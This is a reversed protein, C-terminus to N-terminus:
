TVWCTQWYILTLFLGFYIEVVYKHGVRTNHSPANDVVFVSGKPVGSMVKDMYHEYRAANVEAHYDLPVDKKPKKKSLYIQRVGPFWGRKSGMAVM